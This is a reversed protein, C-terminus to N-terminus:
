GAKGQEDVADGSAVAAATRDGPGDPTSEGSAITRRASEVAM